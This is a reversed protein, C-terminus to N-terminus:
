VSTKPPDPKQRCTQIQQVLREIFADYDRVQKGSRAVSLGDTGAQTKFLAYEVKDRTALALLLGVFVGV